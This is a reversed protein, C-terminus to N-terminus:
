KVTELVIKGRVHGQESLRHAQATEALPFVTDIVPKVHGKDVLAALQELQGRNPKVLMHAARVGHSAATEESPPGVISVLIGNKKLTGWSHKRTESGVMDFVVDIDSVVEDFRPTTEYDIFEDAGLDRLFAENRSSATGIVYAGKWKALQVAIHGVGGAARHILVRQGSSLNATDFLAQWATLSVLPLAAAPAHDISTPKLAIDMPSATVYEAYAAGIDPFAVMGYVEDGLNFDTVTTGVEEIVGSVDWGLILPFPDPYRGAVGQGKRTKCDIPNVGAAHIRILVENGVPATKPAPEYRFVDPGGFEHIRAAYMTEHM